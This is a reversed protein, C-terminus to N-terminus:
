GIRSAMKRVETSWQDRFTPPSLAEADGGLALVRGTLERTDVVPLSRDVFAGEADSGPTDSQDPHWRQTAALRLASARLRVTAQYADGGRFIGSGSSIWAEVATEWRDDGAGQLAAEATLTWSRIRSLHFTRLNKRLHDWAVLYWGGSYNVLRQVEVRRQSTEGALNEYTLELIRRDRLARSLGAFVELDVPDTSPAEYRIRDAVVRYDRSVQTAVTELIEPTVLPRFAESAAWGKVLAAFLVRREDAFRFRSYPKEYTYRRNGPDYALPADLRWRLYEIDRKIQRTSVEFTQAAEATTVWGRERLRRDLFAIRETQSM